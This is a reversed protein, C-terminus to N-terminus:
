YTTNMNSYKTHPIYANSYLLNHTQLKKLYNHRELNVFEWILSGLPSGSRGTVSDILTDDSTVASRDPCRSGSIVKLHLQRKSYYLVTTFYYVAAFGRTAYAYLICLIFAKNCPTGWSIKMLLWNCSYAICVRLCRHTWGTWPRQCEMTWSDHRM